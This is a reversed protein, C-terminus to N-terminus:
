KGPWVAANKEKERSIPKFTKPDADYARGSEEHSGGYNWLMKFGKNNGSSWAHPVGKPIFVRSGPEARWWKGDILVFGAEPSSADIIILEWTDHHHTAIFWGPVYDIDGSSVQGPENVYATSVVDGIRQVQEPKIRGPYTIYPKANM